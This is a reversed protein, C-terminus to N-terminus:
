ANKAPAGKFWAFAFLGLGLIFSGIAHKYHIKTIGAEFGPIFIPLANAPTTFYLIALVVCILGLLIGGWM